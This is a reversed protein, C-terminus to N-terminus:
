PTFSGPECRRPTSGPCRARVNLLQQAQPATSPYWKTPEDPKAVFQEGPGSPMGTMDPGNPDAPPQEYKELFGLFRHQEDACEGCSFYRAYVGVAGSPLTVPAVDFMVHAEVQGTDMNYFWSGIVETKQQRGRGFSIWGAVALIVVVIGIGFAQNERVAERIGM